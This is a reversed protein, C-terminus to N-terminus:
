DRVRRGELGERLSELRMRRLEEAGEGFIATKSWGRALNEPARLNVRAASSESMWMRRFGHRTDATVAFSSGNTHVSDPSLLKAVLSAMQAEPIDVVFPFATALERGYTM